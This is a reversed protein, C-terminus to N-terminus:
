RKGGTGEVLGGHLGALKGAEDRFVAREGRM